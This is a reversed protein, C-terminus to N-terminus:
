KQALYKQLMATTSANFGAVEAGGRGAVLQTRVNGALAKGLEVGWQDFSNIGWVFGQVAVRHEYLSLLQGCSYANLEPFLLSLSPRNGPFEKHAHLHAPVGETVLEALTKGYALADPQAFFNSMLEDHNSVPEGALHVPNPSKCFGIFEAPITRGQHVLQYFSHQGNTGPEGFIIEGCQYPLPTGDISVRKGNSEMDVQQIHAAFRVLAQAYPLIARANHGMFSSNWVGILGLLVPLNSRLPAEFFHTDMSHAGALFQQVVPFGYQLSLPVVGVASSVSFRGGVWDWFGFVNDASIGFATAKPIATSVAIMHQRIVDAPAGQVSDLLWKKITRANLMTEATTFTKSVVIVLTSEADLGSLARSVDVPDVNALFRLTRGAARSAAVPDTRLAEFVFEPGLFSGGIGVAVVTHLPKGTAGLWEGNRVKDTFAAIKQLVAHVDPVVDAGDVVFSKDKPSRLAVHMVARDETANIHVGAAMKARKDELGAAGALDYLMDMTEPQMNERSFDLLIGDHEATLSLCREKDQMLERLHTGQISQAHEELRKWQTTDSILSM